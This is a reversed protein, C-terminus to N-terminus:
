GQSFPVLLVVHLLVLFYRKHLLNFCLGVRYVSIGEAKVDAIHFPIAFVLTLTIESQNATHKLFCKNTM